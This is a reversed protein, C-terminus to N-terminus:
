WMLQILSVAQDPLDFKLILKGSDTKKWEPATISQLQGAKELEKYQEDTVNQPKDMTKWKAFSNSFKDDIRYHHVLVKTKSIGNITLEVPSINEKVDNDNYDWVLISITNGNKSAIANIDNKSKVGNTIIDEAKLEDNSRVM